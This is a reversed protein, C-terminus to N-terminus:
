RYSNRFGTKIIALSNNQQSRGYVEFAHIRSAGLDLSSGPAIGRHVIMMQTDPFVQSMLSNDFTSDAPPADAKNWVDNNHVAVREVALDAPSTVPPLVTSGFPLMWGPANDLDEILMHGMAERTAADARYFTQTSMKDNGSIQLELVTTNTAAIGIIMLVVLMMMSTILVFGQENQITKKM